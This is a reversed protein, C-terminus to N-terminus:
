HRNSIRSRDIEQGRSSDTAISSPETPSDPMFRHMGILSRVMGNTYLTSTQQRTGASAWPDDGDSPAEEVNAAELEDQEPEDSQDPEEWTTDSPGPIASFTPLKMESWATDGAESQPPSPLPSAQKPSYSQEAHQEFSPSRLVNHNAHDEFSAQYSEDPYRAEQDEVVDQQEFEAAAPVPEEYSPSAGWGNEETIPITSKSDWRPLAAPREFVPSSPTDEDAWGNSAWPDMFSSRRDATQM